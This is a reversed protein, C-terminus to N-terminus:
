KAEPETEPELEPDPEPPPAWNPTGSYYFTRDKFHALALETTFNEESSLAALGDDFQEGDDYAIFLGM